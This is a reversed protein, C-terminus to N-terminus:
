GVAIRRAPSRLLNRAALSPLSGFHTRAPIRVRTSSASSDIHAVAELQLDRKKPETAYNNELAREIDHPFTNHGEILNSYYCNMSRVLDGIGTIVTPNWQGGLRSASEVLAVALDDLDTYQEAPILPEIGPCHAM